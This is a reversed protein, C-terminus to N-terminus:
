LEVELIAADFYRGTGNSELEWAVWEQDSYDPDKTPPVVGDRTECWGWIHDTIADEIKHPSAELDDLTAEMLCMAGHWDGPGYTSMNWEGSEWWEAVEDYTISEETPVNDQASM